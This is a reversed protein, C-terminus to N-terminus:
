SDILNLLAYFHLSDMLWYTADCHSCGAKILTHNLIVATESSWQEGAPNNKKNNNKTKKFYFYLYKFLPLPNLVVNYCHSSCQVTSM